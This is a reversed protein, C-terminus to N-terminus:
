VKAPIIQRLPKIYDAGFGCCAGVIQVGKDVWIKAANIYDEISEENNASHDYWKGSVGGKRGADPYVMVPGQWNEMVVDVARDATPIRTHFISIVDPGIQIAERVAESLTLDKMPRSGLYQIGEAVDTPNQQGGAMVTDNSNIYANFGIWVPLGTEKAAKAQIMRAENDRGMAEVVFFDVGAEAMINTSEKYYHELEALPVQPTASFAGFGIEGTRPDRGSIHNSLSGAIWIDRGDSARERAEQALHVARVNIERVFDGYGARELTPRLTSWTNTTIIDSGARIHREHMQIVSSPHTYNTPGSWAIFDMPIGMSQLETSVAADHIITEGRDLRAKLDKYDPM